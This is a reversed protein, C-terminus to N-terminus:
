DLNDPPGLGEFICVYVSNSTVGAMAVVMASAYFLVCVCVCWKEGGFAAVPFGVGNPQRIESGVGRM